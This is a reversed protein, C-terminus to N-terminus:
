PPSELLGAPEPVRISSIPFPFGTTVITHEEVVSLTPSEAVHVAVRDQPYRVGVPASLHTLSPPQHCVDVPNSNEVPLAVNEESFQASDEPLQEIVTM